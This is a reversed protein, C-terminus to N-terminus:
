QSVGVFVGNIFRQFKHRRKVSSYILGGEQRSARGGLALIEKEFAFSNEDDSIPYSPLPVPEMIAVISLIYLGCKWSCFRTRVAETGDKSIINGEFVLAGHEPIAVAIYGIPILNTPEICQELSVIENDIYDLVGHAMIPTMNELLTATLKADHKVGLIKRLPREFLSPINGAEVKLPGGSADQLDIIREEPSVSVVTFPLNHKGLYKLGDM